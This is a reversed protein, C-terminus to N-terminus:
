LLHTFGGQKSHHSIHNTERPLFGASHLPHQFISQKPCHQLPIFDKCLGKSCNKLIGQGQLLLTNFPKRLSSPKPPHKQQNNARYTAEEGLFLRTLPHGDAIYSQLQHILSRQTNPCTKTAKWVLPARLYLNLGTHSSFLM